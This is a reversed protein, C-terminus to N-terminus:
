VISILIYLSAPAGNAKTGLGAPARRNLIIYNGGGYGAKTTAAASAAVASSNPILIAYEDWVFNAEGSAYTVGFCAQGQTLAVATTPHNAGFRLPFTNDCQRYAKSSGSLDTNAAVSATAGDGVAIGTFGSGSAAVAWDKTGAILQSWLQTLGVSTLVNTPGVNEEYPAICLKRYHAATVHEGDPLYLRKRTWEEVGPEWFRAVPLSTWKGADVAAKRRRSLM